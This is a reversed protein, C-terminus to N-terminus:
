AKYKKKTIYLKGKRTFPREVNTKSAIARRNKRLYTKYGAQEM